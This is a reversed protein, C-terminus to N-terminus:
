GGEHADRVLDAMADPALPRAFLYGQGYECGLGRLENLQDDTEIGEAVVDLHLTQGLKIIAHAVAADEPGGLLRAVFSRDIKLIDIPFRQLYALSSYGTGFDDIALRVGLEKLEELTVAAREPDDMLVSETLELVLCGPDLGSAELAAAVDAVLGPAHVQRASVNVSLHLPAPRRHNTQWTRTQRCAEHLVWRGIDVIVGTEEAVPVFMGPAVLDQGGRRWRLLAEAGVVALDDLRLIPQYHLLLEGAPL